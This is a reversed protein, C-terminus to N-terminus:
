PGRAPAVPVRADLADRLPESIGLLEYIVHRRATTNRGTAAGWDPADLHDWLRLREAVQLSLDTNPGDAALREAIAEFTAASDGALAGVVSLLAKPGGVM